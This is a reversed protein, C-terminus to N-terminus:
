NTRGAADSKRVLATLAEDSESQARIAGSLAFTKSTKTYQGTVPDVDGVNIQIAGFDNAALIRNSWSCKRPIYLDVNDGQDNQM